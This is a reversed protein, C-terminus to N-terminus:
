LDLVLRSDLARSVCIMMLDDAARESPTLVSDRHDVRGQLVGTECTGCIGGECSSDTRFGSRRLADLVSEDAEVTLRRGTSGIEIEFSEAGAPVVPEESSFREFRLRETSAPGCKENVAQLLSEPGCCYVLTGPDSPGEPGLVSDLDILGDTDEPCPHVRDKFEGTLTDVFPMTALSRGGYVLQWEASTRAVASVMPLVPTIGIGGAIFVYRQAQELPFHNRPGRVRVRSGETLAAHVHASGGRGDPDLRVAIRWTASDAPDGCLSYQRVLDDGLILDIHAGAEWPPLATGAENRLELTVVGDAVCARGTVVLESETERDSDREM